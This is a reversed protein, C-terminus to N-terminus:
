PQAPRASRSLHHALNRDPLLIVSKLIEEGSAARGSGIELLGRLMTPWSGEGAPRPAASVRAKWAPADFDPLQRALQYAFALAAPDGRRSLSELRATAAGARGCRAEVTGLVAQNAPEALFPELGDRTFDLGPVAEGLHDLINLAAPCAVQAAELARVRVWVQRVNTGGEERAFFRNEFLARAKEFRGAEAYSLALEYVLWAPMAAPEPYRELAAVREAAPRGLISMAEDIGAYVQTNRPDSALGARFADLASEPDHRLRLLTRGLSADLVPIAPHIKRATQWESVAEDVLGSALRLNGLLYHATADGPRARVAAEIVALAQAGAPFV